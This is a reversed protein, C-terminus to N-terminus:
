KEEASSGDYEAKMETYQAMWDELMGDYGGGRGNRPRVIIKRFLPM